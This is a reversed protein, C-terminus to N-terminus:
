REVPKFRIDYPPPWYLLADMQEGTLDIELTDSTLKGTWFSKREIVIGDPVVYVTVGNKEYRTETVETDRDCSVMFTAMFLFGIIRKLVSYGDKRRPEKDPIFRTEGDDTQIMVGNM